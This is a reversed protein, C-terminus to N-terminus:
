VDRWFPCFSFCLLNTYHIRTSLVGCRIAMKTQEGSESFFLLLSIIDCHQRYEQIGRILKQIASGIKILNPIYTRAGSGM